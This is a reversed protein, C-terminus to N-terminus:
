GRSGPQPTGISTGSFLPNLSGVTPWTTQLGSSIDTGRPPSYVLLLEIQATAETPVMNGDYRTYNVSLGQLLGQFQFSNPGGFVVQVTQGVPAYSGPGYNSIGLVGKDNNVADYLGALRELARIDWRVGIEGPGPPAKQWVEFMRNFILQFSISQNTMPLSAIAMAQPSLNTPIPVSSDFTYSQSMTAPNMMFYCSFLKGDNGRPPNTEALQSMGGRVLQLGPYVSPLQGQSPDVFAFGGTAFGPLVQGYFLPSMPRNSSPDTLNQGGMKKIFDATDQSAKGPGSTPASGGSGGSSNNSNTTQANGLLVGNADIYRKIGWFPEALTGALDLPSYQVFAGTHPSELVLGGGIYMVVHADSSGAPNGYFVLDGPQMISESAAAANQAHADYVTAGSPWQSSTALGIEIGAGQIYCAHTFGSCDFADPGKAGFIYPKGILAKGAVVVDGPARASTTHAIGGDPTAPM